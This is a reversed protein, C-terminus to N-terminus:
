VVCAILGDRLDGVHQFHRPGRDIPMQALSLHGPDSGAVDGQSASGGFRRPSGSARDRAWRVRRPWVGVRRGRRPSAGGRGRGGRFPSWGVGSGANRVRVARRRCRRCGATVLGDEGTRGGRGHLDARKGIRNELPQGLAPQSVAGGAPAGVMCGLLVDVPSPLSFGADVTIESGLICILSRGPRISSGLPRSGM